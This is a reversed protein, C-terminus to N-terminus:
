YLLKIYTYDRNQTVPIVISNLSVQYYESPIVLAYFQENNMLIKKSFEGNAKYSIQIIDANASIKDNYLIVVEDENVMIVIGNFYGGDNISSQNKNIIDSWIPNGSSDLNLLMVEDNNFIRAYSSQPIGNVYFIESQTTIFMKECIAMFGGDTRPILKKIKFKSLNEGKQENKLGIVRSVIKRDIPFFRVFNIGMDSCRLSVMFYDKNEDEDHDGSLGFASVTAFDPNYVLRYSSFFTNSNNLVSDTKLLNRTNLALMCHEFDAAEKSKFKSSRTYFCYLNGSDDTLADGIFLESPTGKIQSFGERIQSSRNMLHYVLKSNANDEILYWVLFKDRKLNYEIRINTIETDPGGASFVTKAASENMGSDISQCLLRNFSGKIFEKTFVTIGSSHVVIKELECNPIRFTKSKLLNMKKDFHELIYYRRFNSNKHKLVYVGFKNQGVVKTFDTRKDLNNKNAWIIQQSSCVHFAPSSLMFCTLVLWKIKSSIKLSYRFYLALNSHKSRSLM